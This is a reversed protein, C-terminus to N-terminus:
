DFIAHNLFHDYLAGATAPYDTVDVFSPHTANQRSHLRCKNLDAQIPGGKEMGRINHLVIM